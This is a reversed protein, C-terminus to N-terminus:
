LLQIVHPRQDAAVECISPNMAQRWITLERSGVVSRKLGCIHSYGAGPIANCALDSVVTHRQFAHLEYQAFGRLLRRVIELSAPSFSVRDVVGEGVYRGLRFCLLNADLRGM